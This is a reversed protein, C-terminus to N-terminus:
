GRLTYKHMGYAYPLEEDALEPGPSGEGGDCLAVTGEVEVIPYQNM